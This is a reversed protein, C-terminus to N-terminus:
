YWLVWPFFVTTPNCVNSPIVGLRSDGVEFDCMPRILERQMETYWQIIGVPISTSMGIKVGDVMIRMDPSELTSCLSTTCSQEGQQHPLPFFLKILPFFAPASYWSLKTQTAHRHASVLQFKCRRM